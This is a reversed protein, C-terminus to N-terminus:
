PFQTQTHETALRRTTCGSSGHRAQVTRQQQRQRRQHRQPQAHTCAFVTLSLSQRPCCWEGNAPELRVLTPRRFRHSPLSGQVRKSPPLSAARRGQGRFRKHSSRRSGEEGGGRQVGVQPWCLRQGSKGWLRGQEWLRRCGTCARWIERRLASRNLGVMGSKLLSNM